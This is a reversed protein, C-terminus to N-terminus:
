DTDTAKGELEQDTSVNAGELNRPYKNITEQLEPAIQPKEWLGNQKLWLGFCIKAKRVLFIGDWERKESVDGVFDAAIKLFYEKGSNM